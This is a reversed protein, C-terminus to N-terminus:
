GEKKGDRLLTIIWIIGGLLGVLTLGITGPSTIYWSGLLVWALHAGFYPLHLVGLLSVGGPPYASDRNKQKLWVFHMIFTITCAVTIVVIWYWVPPFGTQNLISSVAFAVVSLGVAEGIRFLNRDRMYRLSPSKPGIWGFRSILAEVGLLTGFAILNAILALIGM